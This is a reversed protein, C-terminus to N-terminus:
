ISGQQRNILEYIKDAATKADAINKFIPSIQGVSQGAVMFCFFTSIIDSARYQGPNGIMM